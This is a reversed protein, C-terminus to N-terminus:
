RSKQITSSSVGLRPALETDRSTWKVLDCVRFLKNMKKWYKIDHNETDDLVGIKSGNKPERANERTLESFVVFAANISNPHDRILKLYNDTGNQSVMFDIKVQDGSIGSLWVDKQYCFHRKESLNELWGEVMGTFIDVVIEERTYVLDYVATVCQILCLMDRGFDEPTTKVTLHGQDETVGFGALIGSFIEARKGHRVSLGSLDLDALTNGYDSLLIRGDALGAVQLSIYDNAENLYPTCIYCNGNVRTVDLESSLWEIHKRLLANVKATDM